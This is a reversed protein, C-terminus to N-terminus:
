GPSLIFGPFNFFFPTVTAVNWSTRQKAPIELFRSELESACKFSELTQETDILIDVNLNQFYKLFNM